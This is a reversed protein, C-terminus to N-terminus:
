EEMEEDMREIESWPVLEGRLRVAACDRVLEGLDTGTRLHALYADTPVLHGTPLPTM